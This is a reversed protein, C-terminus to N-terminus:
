RTTTEAAAMITVTGAAVDDDEHSTISVVPPEEDPPLETIQIGSVMPEGNIRQWTLNLWQDDPHVKVTTSRMIPVGAASFTINAFEAPIRGEAVVSFERGHDAFPEAFYLDVTYRKGGEVRFAYSLTRGESAYRYTRFLEAPADGITGAVGTFCGSDNAMTDGGTLNSSTGVQTEACNWQGTSYPVSDRVRDEGWNLAGSIAVLPGGANVRYLIDGPAALAPRVGGGGAVLAAILATALFLKFWKNM